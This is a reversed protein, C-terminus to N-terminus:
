TELPRGGDDEWRCLACQELARVGARDYYNCWAITRCGTCDRLL